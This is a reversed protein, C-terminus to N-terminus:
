LVIDRGSSLDRTLDLGELSPHKDMLFSKFDPKKGLLAEYATQNIVVVTQDRRSVFQPGETIALSVLESFKNKAEALQWNM